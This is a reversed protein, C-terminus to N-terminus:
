VCKKPEDWPELPISPGSSSTVFKCRTKQASNEIRKTMGGLTELVFSTKCLLFRPSYGYPVLRKHQPLRQYVAKSDTTSSCGATLGFRIM